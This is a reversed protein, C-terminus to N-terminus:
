VLQNGVLNVEFFSIRSDGIFFEIVKNRGESLLTRPMVFRHVPAPQTKPKEVDNAENLNISKEM